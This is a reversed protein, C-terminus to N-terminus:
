KLADQLNELACQLRMLALRAQVASERSDEDLQLADEVTALWDEINIKRPLEAKLKSKSVCLRLIVIASAYMDAREVLQEPSLKTIDPIQNLAAACAEEPSYCHIISSDSANFAEWRVRQLAYSRTSIDESQSM